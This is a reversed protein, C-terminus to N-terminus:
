GNLDRRWQAWATELRARGAAVDPHFKIPAEERAKDVAARAPEIESRANRGLRGLYSAIGAGALTGQAMAVSAGEIGTINGAVFLGGIPTEMLPGHLPVAGGLEPADVLPCGALVALEAVPYLGGSICVADVPLPPDEKGTEGDVSVGATVVAEVREEGEIRIVAKRLLLPIGWVKIGALACLRAGTKSLRGGFLRGAVRLWISPAMGASLSLSGIVGPPLGLDGSLVGPPSLAIGAVEVGAAKLERAVSLSLPDVGVMMVRNGPRVRHLNTFVQAAGVSMVGPLTWGEVPVPKEAAGTAVLVARAEVEGAAGGSLYLRFGPSLHWVTVGTMIGAGASLAEDMLERAIKKGDWLREGPPKGPNEYYQGLLRGGARFYEDIVLVKLNLRALYIAASLGAPGAGIIAVDTKM